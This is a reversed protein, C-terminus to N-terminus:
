KCSNHVWIKCKGVFYTHYKKVEINYVDQQKDQESKEILTASNSNLTIVEDGIKLNKANVWGKEKLWFPHEKTAMLSERTNNSDIFLLGIVRENPTIKLATVRQLDVKGTKEDKSSVMQGIEIEEIPILGEYTSILTGAAFCPERKGNPGSPSTPRKPRTAPSFPRYLGVHDQRHFYNWVLDVWWDGVTRDTGYVPVANVLSGILIGGELTLGAVAANLLSNVGASIATGGAGLTAIGGQPISRIAQLPTVTGFRRAVAGSTILGIVTRAFRTPGDIFFNNTTILNRTYDDLYSLGYPDVWNVPNNQVYAYLNVGGDLGIPDATLYRGIAPDYYRHYNYYLGTESDYYQGPFRFNNEVTETVIQAKGFPLYATQWVVQASSDIM